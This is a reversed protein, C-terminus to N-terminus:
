LRTFERNINTPRRRNGRRTRIRNRESKFQEIREWIIGEIPECGFFECLVNGIRADDDYSKKHLKSHPLFRERYFTDFASEEPKLADPNFKRNFADDWLKQAAQKAQELNRADKLAGRHRRKEIRFDYRYTGSSKDKYVNIM